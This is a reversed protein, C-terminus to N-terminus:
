KLRNGAATLIIVLAKFASPGAPTLSRVGAPGDTCPNHPPQKWPQPAPLPGQAPVPAGTSLM